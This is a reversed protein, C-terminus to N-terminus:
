ERHEKSFFDEVIKNPNTTVNCWVIYKKIMRYDWACIYRLELIQYVEFPLTYAFTYFKDTIKTYEAQLTKFKNNDIPLGIESVRQLDMIEKKLKYARIFDKRKM